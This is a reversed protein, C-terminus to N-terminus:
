PRTEPAAPAAPAPPEASAPPASSADGSPPPPVAAEARDYVRRVKVTRGFPTDLELAVVLQKGDASLRMTEKNKRGNDRKSEVVLGDESWHAKTEEMGNESKHSKGDVTLHRDRGDKETIHVEGTPQTITLETAPRMMGGGRRGEGGSGPEGGGPGDGGPGRGGPGRGGGGRRGGGGFGGGMGGGGPGRGGPGGRGGFRGGGAERMKERIDDSQEPNFRWTGALNLAPPEDKAAALRPPLAALLLVGAGVTPLLARM